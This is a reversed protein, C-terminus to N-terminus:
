QTLWALLGLLPMLVICAIVVGSGFLTGDKVGYLAELAEDSPLQRTLEQQDTELDELEINSFYKRIIESTRHDCTGLLTRGEYNSKEYIRFANASM